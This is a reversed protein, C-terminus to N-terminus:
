VVPQVNSAIVDNYGSKRGVVDYRLAPNLGSVRWTGDPASTTRAVVIGDFISGATGRWLIRIEASVPVADETTIGDPYNGGLYGNGAFSARGQHALRANRKQFFAGIRRMYAPM